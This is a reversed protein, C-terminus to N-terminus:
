EPVRDVTHKGLERSWSKWSYKLYARSKFAPMGKIGFMLRDMVGWLEAHTGYPTTTKVGLFIQLFKALAQRIPNAENSFSTRENKELHLDDNM